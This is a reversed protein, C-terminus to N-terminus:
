HPFAPLVTILYHEDVKPVGQERPSNIIMSEGFPQDKPVFQSQIVGNNERVWDCRYFGNFKLPMM